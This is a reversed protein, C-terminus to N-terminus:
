AVLVDGAAVLAWSFEGLFIKLQYEITTTNEPHDNLKEVVRLLKANSVHRFDKGKPFYQRILGITNENIGRQGYCYSRM